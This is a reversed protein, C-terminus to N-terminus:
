VDDRDEWMLKGIISITEERMYKLEKDYRQDFFVADAKEGDQNMLYIM